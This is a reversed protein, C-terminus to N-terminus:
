SRGFLLHCPRGIRYAEPFNGQDWEEESAAKFALSYGNQAMTDVVDAVRFFWAAVVSGNLNRQGTAYTAEIDGAPLNSLLVYEAGYACLRGLLGRYDEVYQLTSGVLVIDFRASEPPLSSSFHIRPDDGFIGGAVDCIRKGEVVQYEVICSTSLSSSLHIFDTGMSGGFDLIGIRGGNRRCVSAAVLPLLVHRGRVNVPITAGNRATSLLIHALKECQSVWRADDHGLGKVPVARHDPYVGAWIPGFSGGDRTTRYIDLFVPPTLRKVLSKLRM